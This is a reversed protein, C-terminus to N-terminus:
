ILMWNAISLNRAIFFYIYIRSKGFNEELKKAHAFNQPNYEGTCDERLRDLKKILDFFFDFHAAFYASWLYHPAIIVLASVM